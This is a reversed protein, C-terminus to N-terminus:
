FSERALRANRVADEVPSACFTRMTDERSPLGVAQVYFWVPLHPRQGYADKYFDSFWDTLTRGFADGIWGDYKDYLFQHSKLWKEKFDRAANKFWVMFYKRYNSTDECTVGKFPTAHYAKSDEMFYDFTWDM